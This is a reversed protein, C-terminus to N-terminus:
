LPDVRAFSQIKIYQYSHFSFGATYQHYKMPYATLGSVSADATKSRLFDIRLLMM